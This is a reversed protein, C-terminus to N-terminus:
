VVHCPKEAQAIVERMIHISQAELRDLHTLQNDVRPPSDPYQALALTARYATLALTVKTGSPLKIQHTQARNHLKRFIGTLDAHPWLYASKGGTLTDVAQVVSASQLDGVFLWRRGGRGDNCMVLYEDGVARAQVFLSHVRKRKSQAELSAAVLGIVPRNLEDRLKDVNLAPPLWEAKELMRETSRLPKNKAMLTLGSMFLKLIGTHRTMLTKLLDRPLEM